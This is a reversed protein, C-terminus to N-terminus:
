NREAQLQSAVSKVWYGDDARVNIRIRGALARDHLSPSVSHRFAVGSFIVFQDQDCRSQM